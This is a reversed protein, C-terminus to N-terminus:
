AFIEDYPFNSGLRQLERKCYADITDLQAKTFLESGTGTKGKRVIDPMETGGIIPSFKHNIAKMYEFSSKEIVQQRQEPSLEVGLFQSVRDIEGSPDAKLANFPVIHVNPKDAFAWWSATHEAWWGGPLQKKLFKELWYDPTGTQIGMFAFAQPAFHYLSALVEKPDRIVSIYKATENVPVSDAPLHTKIVRFGTPSPPPTETLKISIGPLFEPWAVIDYIYDYDAQGLHAIQLAIQMMWHSGSRSHCAVIIDGKTPSYNRFANSKGRSAAAGTLKYVWEGQGVRFLFRSLQAFPKMAVPVAVHQHSM